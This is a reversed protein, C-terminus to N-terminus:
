VSLPLFIYISLFRRTGLKLVGDYVKEPRSRRAWVGVLLCTNDRGIIAGSMAAFTGEFTLCLYRFLMM